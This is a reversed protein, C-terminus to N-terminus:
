SNIAAEAPKRVVANIEMGYAIHPIIFEYWDPHEDRLKYIWNTFEDQNVRMAEALLALPHPEISTPTNAEQGPALPAIPAEPISAGPAALENSGHSGLKGRFWRGVSRVFGTPQLASPDAEPAEVPTSTQNLASKAV